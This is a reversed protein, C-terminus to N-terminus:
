VRAARHFLSTQASVCEQRSPPRSEARSWVSVTEPGIKMPNNFSGFTIHGNQHVPPPQITPSGILPEYALFTSPMRLLTEGNPRETETPDTLEDVLRYDMEPLWTKQPYGLYNIQVPAVRQGIVALRNGGTHGNLDILIDLEQKRIFETLENDTEYFIDFWHPVLTQLHKTYDDSVPSNHFLYVEFDDSHHRLIPEIFFACSHRRFDSSIYGIKIKKTNSPRSTQRYTNKSFTSAVLRTNDAADKGDEKETLFLQHYLLSSLSEPFPRQKVTNKKFWGIADKVQGNKALMIGYNHILATDTTNLHIAREAYEMGGQIDGLAEEICSLNSLTLPREAQLSLASLYCKKSDQYQSLHQHVVGKFHHTDAKEANLEISRELCNLAEHYNKLEILSRGYILWFYADDEFNDKLARLSLCVKSFKKEQWARNAEKIQHPANSSFVLDHNSSFDQNFLIEFSIAM